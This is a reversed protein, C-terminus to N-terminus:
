EWWLSFVEADRLKLRIHVTRKALSSISGNNWELESDLSDNNALVRCEEASFGAIASGDEDLLEATLRGRSADANVHLGGSVMTATTEVVGDGHATLGVLRDRPWSAAGISKTWKSRQM